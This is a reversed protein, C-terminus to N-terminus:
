GRKKRSKLHKLKDPVNTNMNHQMKTDESTGKSTVAVTSTDKRAKKKKKKYSTREHKSLWREPDYNAMNKETTPYKRKKRRKKSAKEKGVSNLDMNRRIEAAINRNELEEVDILYTEALVAKKLKDEFKYANKMNLYTYIYSSYAFFEIDNKVENFLFKLLDNLLESKKNQILYKSVLFLTDYTVIQIDKKISTKYKQFLNIVLNLNGEGKSQEKTQESYNTCIYIYFLNSFFSKYYKSQSQFLPERQRYINIIDKYNKKKFCLAVFANILNIKQEVSHIRDITNSIASKCKEYNENKHLMMIKLKDVLICDGYKTLLQNLKVQFDTQQGEIFSSVCDNIEFTRHNNTNLGISLPKMFFLSTKIVSLQENSLHFVATNIPGKKTNEKKCKESYVVNNKLAIYNNYSLAVLNPNIHEKQEYINLIKEYITVAEKVKNTKSYIYARQFEINWLKKRIETNQINDLNTIVAEEETLEKRCANEAMDLFKLAEEYQKDITFFIGYNLFLEYKDNEDYKFNKTVKKIQEKKNEIDQLRLQRTDNTKQTKLFQYEYLLNMYAACYSGYLNITAVSQKEKDHLVSDYSSICKDFDGLYYNTHGALLNLFSDNKSEKEMYYNLCGSLKKYQGLKYMSYFFEYIINKTKLKAYNEIFYSKFDQENKENKENKDNRENKKILCFIEGLTQSYKECQILAFFRAKIFFDEITDKNNLIHKTLKIINEYNKENLQEKIQDVTPEAVQGNGANMM